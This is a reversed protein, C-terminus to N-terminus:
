LINAPYEGGLYLLSLLSPCFGGIVFPICFWMRMTWMKWTHMCSAILYLILFIVAAAMSPVYKWLYFDGKYPLPESRVSLTMMTHHLM